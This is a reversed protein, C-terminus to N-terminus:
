RAQARDKRTQSDAEVWILLSTWQALESAGAGCGEVILLTTPALRWPEDWQQTRWNFHPVSVPQGSALSNLSEAAREVGNKLGDWGGYLDELRIIQAGCAEALGDTLFSKGSGSRGDIAIVATTGCQPQAAHLKPVLGNLAQDMLLHEADSM